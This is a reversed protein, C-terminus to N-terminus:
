NRDCHSTYSATQRQLLQYRSQLLTTAANKSAVCSLVKRVLYGRETSRKKRGKRGVLFMFIMTMMLKGSLSLYKWNNKIYCDFLMYSYMRLCIYIFHSNNLSLFKNRLFTSVTMMETPIDKYRCSFFYFPNKVAIMKRNKWRRASIVTSAFM